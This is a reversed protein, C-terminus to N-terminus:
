EPDTPKLNAYARPHTRLQGNLYRRDRLNAMVADYHANEAAWDRDLHPMPDASAERALDYLDKRWAPDIAREDVVANRFAFCAFLATAALLAVTGRSAEEDFSISPSLYFHDEEVSLQCMCSKATPHAWASAEAYLDQYKGVEEPADHRVDGLWQRVRGDPVWKGERVWEDALKPEKALVRALGASEYVSRLLNRAEALFGHSTVVWAAQLQRYGRALVVAAALENEFTEEFPFREVRFAGYQLLDM